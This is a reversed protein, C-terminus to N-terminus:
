PPPRLKARDIARDSAFNREGSSRKDGGRVPYIWATLGVKRTQTSSSAMPITKNETM